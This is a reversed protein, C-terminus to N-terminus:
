RSETMWDYPQLETSHNKLKTLLDDMTLLSMGQEHRLENQYDLLVWCCAEMLLPGFKAFMEDRLSM